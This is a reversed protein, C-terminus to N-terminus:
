INKPIIIEKCGKFMDKKDTVNSTNWNSIDPLSKLSSCNCFMDSMNTVNSTNWNSIDPLSNLSSCNCFMYSMDIVNSTNWNSIDPLSKLSSCEYFMYSMNTITQTEILKIKLINNNNNLKYKECIDYKKNDILIYCKDKNNKIFDNDFLKIENDKKNNNYIIIM